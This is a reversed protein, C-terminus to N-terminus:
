QADLEAQKRDMMKKLMRVDSGDLKAGGKQKKAEELDQNL